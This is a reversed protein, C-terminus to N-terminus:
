IVNFVFANVILKRENFDMFPTIRSIVNSKHAVKKCINDIHSQFTLKSDFSVGLLKRNEIMISTKLNSSCIFHSKDPTTKMQNDAFWQFLTKSASQVKFIVEDLANGVCLPTNDDAYNAFDVDNMIFFLDCLFINFLLPGLISGQPVGFLMEEWSSFESNIKTRQKRNSLYSQILRLDPLSFGYANLKALLPSHSFCDFAKSLDTILAGFTKKIIM